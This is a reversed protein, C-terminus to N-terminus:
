FALSSRGNTSFAVGHEATNVETALRCPIKM